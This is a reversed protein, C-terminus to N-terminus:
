AGPFGNGGDCPGNEGGNEAARKGSLYSAASAFAVAPAVALGPAAATMDGPTTAFRIAPEGRRGSLMARFLVGRSVARLGYM